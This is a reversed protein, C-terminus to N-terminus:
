FPIDDKFEDFNEPEPQYGNSKSQEKQESPKSGLLRLEEANIQFAIRDIGQKDTYKNSRIYGGIYVSTGTKVYNAVIEALKRYCVIRHWETLENQKGEKDKWIDTTAISFNAVADGNPMYRIEPDKGVNGILHVKNLSAM